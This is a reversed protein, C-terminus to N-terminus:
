RNMQQLKIYFYILQRYKNLTFYDKYKNLFQSMKVTKKSLVSSYCRTLATTLILQTGSSDTSFLPIFKAVVILYTADKSILAGTSSTAKSIRLDWASSSLHFTQCTGSFALGNLNFMVFSSFNTMLVKCLSVIKM